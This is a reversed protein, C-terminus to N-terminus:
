PEWVYPVYDDPKVVYYRASHPGSHLQNMSQAKEEAARASLGTSVVRDSIHDCGFNDIAIVQM